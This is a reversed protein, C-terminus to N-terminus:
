QHALAQAQEATPPPHPLMAQLKDVIEKLKYDGHGIMNRVHVQMSLTEAALRPRGEEMFSANKFFRECCAETAPSGLFLKVVVSVPRFAPMMQTQWFELPNPWPEPQGGEAKAQRRAARIKVAKSALASRADALLARFTSLSFAGPGGLEKAQLAAMDWVENAVTTSCWKLRTFRVDFAAAVLAFNAELFFDPFYSCLVTNLKDQLDHAVENEVNAAFIRSFKHMWFPVRCLTPYKEGELETLAKVFVELVSQCEKLHQRSDPDKWPVKASEVAFEDFKGESGLLQLAEWLDLYRKAVFFVDAWRTKSFSVVAKPEQGLQLQALELETHIIGSKTAVRAVEIAAQYYPKAASSDLGHTVVLHLRHAVCYWRDVTLLECTRQEVAAGDTIALGVIQNELLRDHFIRGIEVAQSNASRARLNVFDTAVNRLRWDSDVWTFVIGLWYTGDQGDWGDFSVVVVEARQLAAVADEALLDELVPLMNNELTRTTLLHESAPVARAAAQWEDFLPGSAANFSVGSACIWVMRAVAEKILPVKASRLARSYCGQLTVVKKEEAAANKVFDQVAVLPNRGNAKETDM